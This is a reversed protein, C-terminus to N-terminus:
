RERERERERELQGVLVLVVDDVVVGEGFLAVEGGEEEAVSM